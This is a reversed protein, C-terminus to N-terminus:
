GRRRRAILLGGLALLALSSPEPIVGVSINDLAFAESGGDTTVDLTVVVQSGTGLNGTSFTTFNKGLEVGNLSLPDDLDVQTGSAMFYTATADEDVSSTFTAVVSSDVEITVSFVDTSEFDGMAAADFSVVLNDTSAFDFTWVATEEGTANDGNTTDTAGFFADYSLGDAANVVIGLTDPLFAGLSDDLLAFPAPMGSAYEGFGDGASSYTAEGTFSTLNLDDGGFNDFAVQAHATTGLSALLAAASLTTLTRKM